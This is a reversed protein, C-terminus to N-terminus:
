RPAVEARASRRAATKAFWSRQCTRCVRAVTKRGGHNVYTVTNEPTFAHGHICHTKRANLAAPAIPSRMVNERQDVVDLHDPNICHRVRCLHDVVKDEPVPFGLAHLVVRHAGPIVRDLPKWTMRAYGANTLPGTWLWCGTADVEFHSALHSLTQARNRPKRGRGKTLDRPRSGTALRESHYVSAM